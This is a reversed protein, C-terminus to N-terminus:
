EHAVNQAERLKVQSFHLAFIFAATLTSEKDDLWFGLTASLRVVLIM